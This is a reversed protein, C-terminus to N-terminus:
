ARPLVINGQIVTEGKQTKVWVNYRVKDPTSHDPDLKGSATVTDEERVPRTFRVDMIAGEFAHDGLSSRISQWVLNLSLMGHAIIGGMPSKAAFDPDIHIPNFDNTIEAYQRIAKRDVLKSKEILTEIM